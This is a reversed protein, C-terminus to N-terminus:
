PRRRPRGGAAPRRARRPVRRRPPGAAAPRPPPRPTSWPAASPPRCPDPRHPRPPATSPPRTAPRRPTPIRRGAPGTRPLRARHTRHTAGCRGTSRQLMTAKSRHSHLLAVMSCERREEACRRHVGGRGDLAREVEVLEDALGVDGPAEDFPELQGEAAGLQEGAEAARGPEPHEDDTGLAHALRGEHAASGGGDASAADVDRGRPDGGEFRSGGGCAHVLYEPVRPGRRTGVRRDDDQQGVDVGQQRGGVRGREGGEDEVSEAGGDRGGGRM